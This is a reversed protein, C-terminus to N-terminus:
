VYLAYFAIDQESRLIRDCAADFAQRFLAPDLPLYITM